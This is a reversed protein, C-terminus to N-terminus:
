EDCESRSVSARRQSDGFFITSVSGTDAGLASANVIVAAVVRGDDGDGDGGDVM